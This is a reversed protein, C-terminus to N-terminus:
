GTSEEVTYAIHRAHQVWKSWPNEFHSGWIGADAEGPLKSSICMRM